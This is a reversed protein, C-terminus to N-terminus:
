REMQLKARINELEQLPNSMKEYIQDINETVERFRIGDGAAESLYYNTLNEIHHKHAFVEIADLFFPSHTTILVTLNFAKQLLVIIEAYILQWQPHLHIEPEDLILIGREKLSNNELLRKLIAFAKIGASWNEVYLEGSQNNLALVLRNEKHVINGPITQQLLCNIDALKERIEIMDVVSPRYDASLYKLLAARPGEAPRGTNRFCDEVIFPDDVYIADELLNITSQCAVCNNESFKIIKEKQQVELRIETQVKNQFPNMQGAFVDTFARKVIEQEIAADSHNWVSVIKERLKKKEQESLDQQFEDHIGKVIDRHWSDVVFEDVQLNDAIQLLKKIMPILSGDGDNRGLQSNVLYTVVAQKRDDLVLQPMNRLRHFLTFMIKGVTSKGTNNDGAIVTLGDFKLNAEKIKAFDKVILKM